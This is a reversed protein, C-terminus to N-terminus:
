FKLGVEFREWTAELTNRPRHGAAQYWIEYSTAVEPEAFPNHLTM